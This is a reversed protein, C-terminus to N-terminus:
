KSIEMQFDSTSLPSKKLEIKELCAELRERLRPTTLPDGIVKQLALTASLKAQELEPEIFENQSKDTKTM